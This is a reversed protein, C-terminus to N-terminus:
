AHPDAALRGALTTALQQELGDTIPFADLSFTAMMVNARGSGLMITDFNGGVEVTHFKKKVKVKVQALLRIRYAATRPADSPFALPGTAGVSIKVTKTSSSWATAALCALFAPQNTRDWQAQAQDPTSWIMAESSIMSAGAGHFYPSAEDGTITLDSFDPDWGGCPLDDGSKAGEVTPSGGSGSSTWGTGLDAAALPISQAWTQDAPDVSVKPAKAAQAPAAVALAILAVALILGRRTV